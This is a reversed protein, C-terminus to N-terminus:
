CGWGGLWGGGGGGGLLSFISPFVQGSYIYNCHSDLNKLVELLMINRQVVNLSRPIRM